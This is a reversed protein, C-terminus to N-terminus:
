AVLLGEEVSKTERISRRLHTRRMVDAVVSALKHALLPPVANGVQQYQQTRTGEFFYTDPFTQIRAAERVTLSRCQTSDYHIYYHGDKSIHSTITTAPTGKIQVRFRDEFDGKQRKGNKSGRRVVNSHRPLLSPPFECLKPSRGTEEAACVAFFYRLLDSPMHSRAQHQIIGNLKADWLWDRLKRPPIRWQLYPAGFSNHPKIAKLTSALRRRVAADRIGSLIERHGAASIARLWAEVNDDGRSIRSRLRPMSGIVDEINTREASFLDGLTVPQVSVDSRVGLLIVRHRRQPVGWEESQIVFDKPSLLEPPHRTTMFSYITYSHREGSVPLFRAADRDNLIAVGPNRLDELIQQFISGTNERTGHTSSLIGKVNEMVFATPQHVAVIKLYERYLTHREDTSFREVNKMRSRGVVSYAQCPPGGLLLWQDAGVVAEAIADSVKEFPEEGLTWQRAEKQAAKWQLPYQKELFKRDIEEEGRLYRYYDEPPHRFQRLFARLHLTRWAVEDKEISLKVNFSIDKNGFSSFGYSLGGPGAFLDVVPITKM